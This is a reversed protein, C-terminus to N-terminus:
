HASLIQSVTMLPMVMVLTFRVVCVMMVFKMRLSRREGAALPQDDPQLVGDPVVVVV